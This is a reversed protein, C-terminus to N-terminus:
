QITNSRDIVNCLKSTCLVPCNKIEKFYNENPKSDNYEVIFKLITRTGFSVPTVKHLISNQELIVLTNDLPKIENIKPHLEDTKWLFKSDSTNSLTLVIELANPSFLSADKHWAMGNYHTPYIRYEIPYSPYKKIKKDKSIKKILNMFKENNYILNYLNHHSSKNLCITKRYSNRKDDKVKLNKCYSKIKDFDNKSFFNSYKWLKNKYNLNAGNQNELNIYRKYYYIIIIVFFFLIFKYVNNM